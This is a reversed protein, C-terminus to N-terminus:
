WRRINIQCVVYVTSCKMKCISSRHFPSLFLCALASFDINQQALLDARGGTRHTVPRQKESSHRQKILIFNIWLIHEEMQQSASITLATFLYKHSARNKKLCSTVRPLGVCSWVTSIMQVTVYGPYHKPPYLVRRFMTNAWVLPSRDNNSQTPM